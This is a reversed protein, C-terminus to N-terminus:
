SALKLSKTKLPEVEHKFPRRAEVVNSHAQIHQNFADRDAFSQFAQDLGTLEFLMRIQENMSCLFLQCGSSRVMKLAKVLAIFSSSSMSTIDRLDVLIVDAGSDVANKIESHFLAAAAVSLFNSPQVIRTAFNM